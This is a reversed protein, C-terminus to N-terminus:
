IMTTVDPSLLTFIASITGMRRSTFPMTKQLLESVNSSTTSSRRSFRMLRATRYGLPGCSSTMHFKLDMGCNTSMTDSWNM